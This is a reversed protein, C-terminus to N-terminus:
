SIGLHERYDPDWDAMLGLELARQPTNQPSAEGSLPSTSIVAEQVLNEYTAEDMGLLDKLLAGNAEGFEPAPGTIKLPSNSFKYPRGMFLRTGLGREPPFEVRELFNRSQYQPDFHIDKGSLVPGAPIGVGQLQHWPGGITSGANQLVADGHGRAPFGRLYPQGDGQFLRPTKEHACRFWGWM